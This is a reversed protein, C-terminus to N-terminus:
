FDHSAALEVLRVRKEASLTCGAPNHANPIVHAFEIPGEDLAAELAGLRDRRGRASRCWSVGM